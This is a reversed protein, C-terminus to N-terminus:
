VEGLLDRSPCDAPFWCNVLDREAGTQQLIGMDQEGSATAFYPSLQWRKWARQVHRHKAQDSNDQCAEQKTKTGKSGQIPAQEPRQSLCAPDEQQDKHKEGM